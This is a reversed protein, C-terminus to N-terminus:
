ETEPCVFEGVERGSELLDPICDSVDCDSCDLRACCVTTEVTPVRAGVSPSWCDSVDSDSCVQRAVEVTTGVPPVSAETPLAVRERLVVQERAAPLDFENDIAPDQPGFDDSIRAISGSGPDTM